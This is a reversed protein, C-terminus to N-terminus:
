GFRGSMREVGLEVFREVGGAKVSEAFLAAPAEIV